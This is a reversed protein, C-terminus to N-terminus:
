CFFAQLMRVSSHRFCLQTHYSLFTAISVPVNNKESLHGNHRFAHPFRLLLSHCLQLSLLPPRPLVLSVQLFRFCTVSLSCQGTTCTSMPFWKVKCDPNGWMLFGFCLSWLLYFFMQKGGRNQLHPFLSPDKKWKRKGPVTCNKSGGSEIEELSSNDM